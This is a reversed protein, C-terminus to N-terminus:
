MQRTQYKPYYLQSFCFEEQSIQKEKEDNNNDDKDVAHGLTIGVAAGVPWGVSFGTVGGIIKGWVGM